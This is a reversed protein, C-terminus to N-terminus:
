FDLDRPHFPSFGRVFAPAWVCAVRGNAGAFTHVGRELTRSGRYPTGDLVGSAEGSQSLMVYDGPIAITLTGDRQLWQGSVRLRGLDIFNARMFLRARDPWQTGDAQAIHCRTRILDEPVTDAVLGQAIANRTIFELIFYYPRRRYILEGKYDMVLEGPRSVNLLQREMTIFEATRNTLWAAYYGVGTLSVIATVIIAEVFFKRRAVAAVFFIALFPLFPLFDRPSILIWFSFLTAFFIGTAVAFFYRADTTRARYRWAQRFVVYMMPIFCIRPLWVVFPSRSVAVLSNFRFACYVLDPWAGRAVFYGAILAPVIAFGLAFVAVLEARVGAGRARRRMFWTIAGAAALTFLLLTTKISVSLACGLLLGALFFTRSSRRGLFLVVMALMWFANWLNDTRFEISKLFFPPLVNLMVVSWIAIRVDYLRQAIVYTCAIVILWLLVMPGRMWLLIDAREGLLRLLPATAMHFLPAHNDFVDRYQLLGATWGWAVHLHQPEDSDFRYHFFAVIRMALTVAAIAILAFRESRPLASPRSNAAPGDHDLRAAAESGRSEKQSDADHHESTTNM